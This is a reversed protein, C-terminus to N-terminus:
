LPPTEVSLKYCIRMPFVGVPREGAPRAVQRCADSRIM